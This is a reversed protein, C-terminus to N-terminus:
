ESSCTGTRPEPPGIPAQYTLIDCTVSEGPSRFLLITLTPTALPEYYTHEVVQSTENPSVTGDGWDWRYSVYGADPLSCTVDFTCQSIWPDFSIRWCSWEFCAVETPQASVPGSMAIPSLLLFLLVASYKM